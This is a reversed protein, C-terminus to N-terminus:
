QNLPVIDEGQQPDVITKRFRIPAEGLAAGMNAQPMSYRKKGKTLLFFKLLDKNGQKIETLLRSEGFDISLEDIQLVYEHYEPDDAMWRNHTNWVIGTASCAASVVGLNLELATLFRKKLRRTKPSDEKRPKYSIGKTNLRHATKIDKATVNLGITRLINVAQMVAEEEADAPFSAADPTPPHNRSILPKHDRGRTEVKSGSAGKLAGLRTRKKKIEEGMSNLM